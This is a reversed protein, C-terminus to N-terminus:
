WSYQVELWGFDGHFEPTWDIPVRLEQGLPGNVISAERSTVRVLVEREGVVRFTRQDGIREFLEIARGTALRVHLKGQDSIEKTGLALTRKLVAGGPRLEATIIEGIEVSGCRYRFLPHRAEDFERGITSSREEPWPESGSTLWAFTPGPPFDLVDESPPEELEGARAHWTGRADFFRGRWAKALRSNEVDFAYHVREPLGVCITRPSVDKMFVGVAIPVDYVEVEYEGEIPVLGHPLPMSAGLSLYSWIADVQRAPDGDLLSKVPSKGDVWFAPMRTNMKLAVPDMLLARFWGPQIRAHVGALDVAPIGLSAHGGFTHCQICGLGKTGVLEKGAEIAAVSFEPERADLQAADVCTFLGVLPEVNEAGFQPMRTKMYPRVRGEGVLVERLYPEKLKAGVQDLSPPLRGEDGLDLGGVVQFYSRREDDPGGNLGREHCAFCDLRALEQALRVDDSRPALPRGLCEGLRRM